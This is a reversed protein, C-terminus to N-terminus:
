DVIELFRAHWLKRTETLGQYAVKIRVNGGHNQTHLFRNMIERKDERSFGTGISGLDHGNEPNIVEIAGFEHGEATTATLGTIYVEMEQIYKTRVSAFSKGPLYTANFMYWVEGEREEQRQQTALLLKENATKATPLKDFYYPNAKVLFDMIGECYYVRDKFVKQRLDQNNFFLCQFAAFKSVPAINPFGLEINATAAQAGTRHEKGDKDWYYLEGELVFDGFEKAALLFLQHMKAVPPTPHVRLSRSQYEVRNEAAFVVLKNGDRKPQGWHIESSIYHERESPADKPQMTVLHGPAMGEPWTHNNVEQLFQAVIPTVQEGLSTQQVTTQMVLAERAGNVAVDMAQHNAGPNFRAYTGTELEYAKEWFVNAMEFDMQTEAMRALGICKKAGISRGYDALYQEGGYRGNLNRPRVRNAWREAIDINITDRSHQVRYQSLTSAIMM